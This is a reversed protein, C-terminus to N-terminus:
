MRLLTVVNNTYLTQQLSLSILIEHSIKFESKSPIHDQLDTLTSSSMFQHIRIHVGATVIPFFVPSFVGTTQYNNCIEFHIYFSQTNFYMKAFFFFFFSKYETCFQHGVFSSAGSVHQAVPHSDKFEVEFINLFM